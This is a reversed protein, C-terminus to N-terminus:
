FMLWNTGDITYVKRKNTGGGTPAAGASAPYVTTADTVYTESYPNVTGLAILQSVTFARHVHLRSKDIVPNAGFM